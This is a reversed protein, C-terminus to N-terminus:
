GSVVGGTAVIVAGAAPASTTWFAVTVAVALSSAATAPTCNLTSPLVIPLSSVVAGYEIVHSARPREAPVWASVATARSVDALVLVDAGTETVTSGVPSTAAYPKSSVLPVAAISEDPLPLPPVSAPPTARDVVPLNPRASDKSPTSSMTLMASELESSRVFAIVSSAHTFGVAAPPQRVAISLPWVPPSAYPM